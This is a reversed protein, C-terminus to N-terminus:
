THKEPSAHRPVSNRTTDASKQSYLVSTLQNRPPILLKSNKGSFNHSIPTAIIYVYVVYFTSFIWMLLWAYQLSIRPLVLSGCVASGGGSLSHAGNLRLAVSLAASGVRRARPFTLSPLLHFGVPIDEEQSRPIFGAGPLALATAGYHPCNAPPPALLLRPVKGISLLICDFAYPFVGPFASEVPVSVRRLYDADASSAERLFSVRVHRGGISYLM